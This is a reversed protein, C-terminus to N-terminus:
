WDAAAYQHLLSRAYPRYTCRRLSGLHLADSLLSSTTWTNGDRQHDSTPKLRKLLNCIRENGTINGRKFDKRRGEEYINSQIKTEPQEEKMNKIDTNETAKAM